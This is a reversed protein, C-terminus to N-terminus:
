ARRRRLLALGGIALMSLSAPEPVAVVLNIKGVESYDITYDYSEYGSPLSGLTLGSLPKGTDTLTAGADAYFQMLTYTGAALSGSGIFSLNVANSNLVVDGSLVNFFRTVDSAFSDGLEQEITAGSALTAAGTTSGLDLTLTGISAGPALKGAVSIVSSGSPKITGTGGITGIAAVNAGGAISGNVLLVGDNVTTTGTYTNANTLIWKGVGNKTLSVTSNGNTATGNNALKLALTNDGTNTGTLVLTRSQNTSSTGTNTFGISGTNEFNIAGSGSADLVATHNTGSSNFRFLRDTSADTGTYKLVAGNNLLLNTADAASAGISSAQGGDALSNASLTAGTNITTVGTYTNAGNLSLTGASNATLGGAGSIVGDVGFALSNTDFTAVKGSAVSVLRKGDLTFSAGARVTSSEEFTLNTTAISPLTGFSGDGAFQFTGGQFVTGGSYSSDTATFVATRTGKLTLVRGASEETIKGWYTDTNLTFVHDGVLALKMLHSTSNYLPGGKLEFDGALRLQSTYLGKLKDNASISGSKLTITGGIGASTTHWQVAAGDITLGGANSFTGSNNGFKFAGAKLTTASNFAAGSIVPIATSNNTWDQMATTKLPSNASVTFGTVGSDITLGGAGLSIDGGSSAKTIAINGEQITLSGASVAGGMTVTSAGTVDSGASFVVDSGASYLGATGTGDANTNWNATSGADWVGTAVGASGGLAELPDTSNVDWYLPAANAAGAMALASLAATTLSRKHTLTKM